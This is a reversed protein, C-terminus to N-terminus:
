TAPGADTLRRPGVPRAPQGLHIMWPAADRTLVARLGIIAGEGVTLGPMVVAELAVWAGDEIRIPAVRLGFRPDSPDHSGTCLVARQSIVVHAGITIDELSYLDTGEGIWSHDGIALRWPYKCHVDPAIHVGQGLRAGFRRYWWARWGYAVRPTPRVLFRDVVEWLVCVASSRGRQYWSQDYLDLRIPQDPM